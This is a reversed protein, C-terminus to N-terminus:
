ARQRFDDFGNMVGSRQLNQVGKTGDPSSCCLDPFTVSSDSDGVHM